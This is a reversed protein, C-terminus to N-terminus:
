RFAHQLSLYCSEKVSFPVSLFSYTQTFYESIGRCKLVTLLLSYETITWMVKSVLDKLQPKLLYKTIEERAVLQIIELVTGSKFMARIEQKTWVRGRCGVALAV